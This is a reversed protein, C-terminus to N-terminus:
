AADKSQTTHQTSESGSKARKYHASNSYKKPLVFTATAGPIQNGTDDTNNALEFYGQHEEAIKTVIALGLGSGHVKTTFYPETIKDAAESSIGEGNDKIQIVINDGLSQTHVHIVGDNQGSKNTRDMISEAANKLLNNLCQRLMTPDAEVIDEDDLVDTHYTINSHASKTLLVADKVLHSTKVPEINATPMRAFSSFESVMQELDSVQRIIMDTYDNFREANETIQSAFGKKLREASLQIPTLPNKIEHALRRAVDAWAATKQASLLATIDDFAIVFGDTKEKEDFAPKESTIRVLFSRTRGKEDKISICDEHTKTPNALAKEIISQFSSAHHILPEGLQTELNINLLESARENPYEINGKTDLGIIGTTVGSLVAEIFRRREDLESNTQILESRQENLQSTMKNFASALQDIEDAKRNASLNPEPIQVSLNGKRVEETANILATIPSVLQDAFSLGIWLSTILLILAVIMFVLIFSVQLGSREFMLTEYTDVAADTREIHGLINPDVARGVYLYADVYNDLRVLARVRDSEENLILAVDGRRAKQLSDDPVPELELVFTLGSRALNVGTSNFVLVESFNRLAAHTKVARDFLRPNGILQAAQRNLDNAMTLADAEIVRLHEELYSDAVARSETLATSVKDSFWTNVGFNFFLGSFVAVVIAPTIAVASFLFALRGHLRSGKKGRKRAMFLLSVKRGVIATVILLLIVNVNMLIFLSDPSTGFPASSTLAVYTSIGSAIACLVIIPTIKRMMKKRKGWKLAPQIFQEYVARVSIDRLYGPKVAQPSSNPM